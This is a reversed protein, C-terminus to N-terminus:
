ERDDRSSEARTIGRRIQDPRTHVVVRRLESLTAMWIAFEEDTMGDLDADSRSASRCAKAREIDDDLMRVLRRRSAEAETMPDVLTPAYGPEPAFHFIAMLGRMPTEFLLRLSPALQRSVRRQRLEECEFRDLVATISPETESEGRAVDWRQADHQAALINEQSLLFGAVTM